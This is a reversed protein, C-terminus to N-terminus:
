RESLVNADSTCSDESPREQRFAGQTFHCLAALSLFREVQMDVTYAPIMCTSCTNILGQLTGVRLWCIQFLFWMAPSFPLSACRLVTTILQM